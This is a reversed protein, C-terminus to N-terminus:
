APDEERKTNEGTPALALAADLRGLLAQEEPRLALHGQTAADAWHRVVRAAHRGLAVRGDGADLRDLAALVMADSQTTVEGDGWHGHRAQMAEYWHRVLRADRRELWLAATDGM